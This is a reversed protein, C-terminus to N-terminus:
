DTSNTGYGSGKMEKAIKPIIIQKIYWGYHVFTNSVAKDFLNAFETIADARATDAAEEYQRCNYRNIDSEEELAECKAKLREVEKHLEENEARLAFWMKMARQACFTGDIEYVCDETREGLETKGKCGECVPFSDAVADAIEQLREIEADKKEIQEVLCSKDDNLTDIYAEHKAILADKERLLALADKHLKDKCPVDCGYYPCNDCDCVCSSGRDCCELAQMVDEPKMENM